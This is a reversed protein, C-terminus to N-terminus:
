GCTSGFRALLVALDSLDVDGDCDSDGDLSGADRPTGFNSLLTALDSLGIAGDLDLDGECRATRYARVDTGVGCIVLTGDCGIAPSGVNSNAVPVSWRLSLEPNFSYFRGNTFSGNCLFLRGERDVAMRPQANADSVIPASEALTAGTLPDLRKVIEGPALMFVSGDAAVAFESVVSWRAPVSWRITMAAGDDNIAYFFDTGANNQTRSLYITGDHSVMPTNQLTFGAM